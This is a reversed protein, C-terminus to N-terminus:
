ESCSFILIRERDNGEPFLDGCSIEDEFTFQDTTMLRAIYEDSPYYFFLLIERPDKRWSATIRRIVTKLVKEPFPNFFFIRDAADPEYQEAESCIFSIRDAAKGGAGRYLELNKLSKKVMWPDFDIGVARCGAQDAFFLPVRGKGSGYDLLVNESGILGSDLLRELCAYPTPEYAHHKEDAKFGDRGTTRINLRKEWNKEAADVASLGM